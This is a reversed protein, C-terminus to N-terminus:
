EVHTDPVCGSTPSSVPTSLEVFLQQLALSLTSCYRQKHKVRRQICAALHQERKHWNQELIAAAQKAAAVLAVPNCGTGNAGGQQSMGWGVGVGPGAGGHQSGDDGNSDATSPMNGHVSNGAGNRTTPHLGNASVAHTMPRSGQPTDAGQLEKCYSISATSAAQNEMAALSDLSHDPCSATASPEAPLSPGHLPMLGLSSAPDFISTESIHDLRGRKRLLSSSNPLPTSARQPLPCEACCALQQPGGIAHKLEHRCCIDHTVVSLLVYATM